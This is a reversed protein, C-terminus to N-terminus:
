KQPGTQPRTISTESYINVRSKDVYETMETCLAVDFWLAFSFTRYGAQNYWAHCSFGVNREVYLYGVRSHVAPVHLFLNQHASSLPRTRKLALRDKEKSIGVRFRVSTTVVNCVKILRTHSIQVCVGFACGIFVRIQNFLTFM